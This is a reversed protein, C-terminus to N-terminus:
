LIRRWTEQDLPQNKPRVWLGINQKKSEDVWMFAARENKFGFILGFSEYFKISTEYLEM